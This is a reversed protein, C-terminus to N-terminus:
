WQHIEQFPINVWQDSSLKYKRGLFAPSLKPHDRPKAQAMHGGGRGFRGAFCSPCQSTSSGRIRVLHDNGEPDPQGFLGRVRHHYGELNGHLADKDFRELKEDKQEEVPQTTM